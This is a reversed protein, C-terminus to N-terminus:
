KSQEVSVVQLRRVKGNPLTWNIKGGIRLGILATGIPSLISIKKEDVNAESPYVLTVSTNQHSDLDVFSVYSNMAVVDVPFEPTNVVEARSLEKELAEVAAASTKETIALIGEYDRSSIVVADNAINFM